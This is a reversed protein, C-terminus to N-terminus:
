EVACSTNTGPPANRQRRWVSFARVLWIVQAASIVVSTYWVPWMPMQYRGVPFLLSAHAVAHVITGGFIFTVAWERRFASLVVGLLTLAFLPIRPIGNLSGGARLHEGIWGFAIRLPGGRGSTTFIETGRDKPEEAHWDNNGDWSLRRISANLWDFKPDPHGNKPDPFYNLQWGLAHVAHWTYGNPNRLISARNWRPLLSATNDLKAVESVFRRADGWKRKRDGYKALAARVEPSEPYNPDLLKFRFLGRNQMVSFGSALGSVGRSHNFMMWPATPLAFGILILAAGITRVRWGVPRRLLSAFAFFPVIVQLAPRVLGGCGLVLGLLVSSVYFPIRRSLALSMGLAVVAISLSETLAYHGIALLWPDIACLLGPLLGWYGGAYRGVVYTVLGCTFCGALHQLVLVGVSSVGFVKFAAALFLPYGPTRISPIDALSGNASIETAWTLYGVGDNTIILPISGLCWLRLIASVGVVVLVSRLLRSKRTRLGIDRAGAVQGDVALRADAGVNGTNKPDVTEGEVLGSEPNSAGRHDKAKGEGCAM